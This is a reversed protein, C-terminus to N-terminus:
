FYDLRTSFLEEITALSQRVSILIVQDNLMFITQSNPLIIQNDRILAAIKISDPKEIDHAKTGIIKSNELVTTEIIEAWNNNLTHITKLHRNKVHRLINSVTIESPNIISDIGLSYVFANSGPDNILAMSQSAGYRKASLSALTNVKDDQTVAIVTQASAIGAEYLVENDLADGHLVVCRNLKGSIFKAREADREVIRVDVNNLRKEILEGLFFGINGGGIIVIRRSPNDHHGFAELAKDILEKRVVFYVEDGDLLKEKDMPILSLEGRQIAIIRLDAEPFLSTIHSIPTNVIPTDFHCKVSILKLDEALKIVRLAGTINLTQFIANAVELEPSIRTDIHINDNTFLKAYKENMYSRNRIRAIKTPLQYLIHVVECAVINVEDSYTVAILLDADKAGALSLVEPDSAFGCIARIDHKDSINKVLEESEEIITVDHGKLELYQAISLGVNGAGCVITKM